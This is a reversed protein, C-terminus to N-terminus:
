TKFNFDSKSPHTADEARNCVCVPWDIIISLLTCTHKICFSVGSFVARKHRIALRCRPTHTNEGQKEKKRLSFTRLCLWQSGDEREVAIEPM